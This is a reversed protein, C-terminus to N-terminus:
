VRRPKKRPARGTRGWEEFFQQVDGLYRGLVCIDGNANHVGCRGHPIRVRINEGHVDVSVTKAERCRMAKAIVGQLDLLVTERVVFVDQASKSSGDTPKSQNAVVTQGM